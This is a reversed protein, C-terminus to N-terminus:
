WCLFFVVSVSTICNGMLQRESTGLPRLRADVGGRLEQKRLSVVMREEGDAATRRKWGSSPSDPRKRSFRAGALGVAAFVIFFCVGM